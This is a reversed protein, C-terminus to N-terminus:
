AARVHFTLQNVKVPRHQEDREIDVDWEIDNGREKEKFARVILAAAERIGGYSDAWDGSSRWGSEDTDIVQYRFAIADPDDDTATAFAAIGGETSFSDWEEGLELLMSDPVTLSREPRSLQGSTMDLLFQQDGIPVIVVLHGDWRNDSWTGTGAIAIGFSGDRRWAEAKVQKAYAGVDFYDFVKLAVNSSAICSDKSFLSQCLKAGDGAVFQLLRNLRALDTM